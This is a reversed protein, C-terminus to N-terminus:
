LYELHNNRIDSPVVSVSSFILSSVLAVIRQIGNSENTGPSLSGPLHITVPLGDAQRTM